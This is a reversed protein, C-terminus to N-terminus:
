TRTPPGRSVYGVRRRKEHFLAAGAALLAVLVVAPAPQPPPLPVLMAGAGAQCLLCHSHGECPIEGPGPPSKEKDIAGSCLPFADTAFGPSAISMMGLALPISLMLQLLLASAVTWAVAGSAKDARGECAMVLPYAGLSGTLALATM